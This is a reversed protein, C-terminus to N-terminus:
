GALSALDEAIDEEDSGDYEETTPCEDDEELSELAAWLAEVEEELAAIRSVPSGGEKRATYWTRKKTGNESIKQPPKFPTNAFPM